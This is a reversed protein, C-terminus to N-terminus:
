FDSTLCAAFLPTLVQDSELKKPQYALNDTLKTHSVLNPHLFPALRQLM